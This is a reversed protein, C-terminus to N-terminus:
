FSNKNDIVQKKLCLQIKKLIEKIPKLRPIEPKRIRRDKIFDSILNHCKFCRIEQYVLSGSGVITESIETKVEKECVKCFM